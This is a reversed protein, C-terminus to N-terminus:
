KLFILENIFDTCDEIMIYKLNIIAQLRISESHWQQQSRGWM